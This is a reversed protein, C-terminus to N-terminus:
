GCLPLPSSNVRDAGTLYLSRFLLVSYLVPQSQKSCSYRAQIDITRFTHGNQKKKLQLICGKIQSSLQSVTSAGKSSNCGTIVFPEKYRALYSADEECERLIDNASGWLHFLKKQQACLFSISTIGGRSLTIVHYSMTNTFQVIPLCPALNKGNTTRPVCDTCPAFSTSRM